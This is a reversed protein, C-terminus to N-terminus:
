KNEFKYSDLEESKGDESKEQTKAESKDDTVEESDVCVKGDVVTMDKPLDGTGNFYNEYEKKTGTWKLYLEQMLDDCKMFEKLLDENTNISNSQSFAKEINQVM